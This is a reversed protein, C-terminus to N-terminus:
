GSSHPVAACWASQIPPRNMNVAARWLDKDVVTLFLKASLLVSRLSQCVDALCELRVGDYCLPTVVWMVVLRLADLPLNLLKMPPPYKQTYALRAPTPRLQM